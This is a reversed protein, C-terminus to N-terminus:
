LSRAFALIRKLEEVNKFSLGNAKAYQAMKDAGSKDLGLLKTINKKSPKFNKIEKENKIYYGHKQVYRDTKRNLMPNASGEVLNVKHGKLLSYEPADYIIEYIRNTEKYYFNKYVKNNIVFKDINNFSFNFLSDQHFKSQFSQSQLNI